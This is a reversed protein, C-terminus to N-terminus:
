DPHGVTAALITTAHVRPAEGGPPEITGDAVGAEVDRAAAEATALSPYLAWLTPGSGSQGVPRGLRRALARRFSRLAPVVLATANVLDNATALVGARAILQDSALGARLEQALHESTLRASRADNPGADGGNDLMRFVETTSVELAPSVLLVAVAQGIPARLTTLREGRGEVLAPGGVLFFPVDSGVGAAAAVRDAPSLDVAWAALAAEIAAAADSSGGGLGAAIPIRKELRAALPVVPAAPGLAARVVRRAASIGRLVLDDPRPAAADGAVHLTDPPGSAEAVSLRDALALPVMVSHLDHSGDPRRPGIALTLNLKAPALRVVPLLASAAAPRDATGTM